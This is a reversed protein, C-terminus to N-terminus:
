LEAEFDFRELDKSPRFKSSSLLRLSKVIPAIFFMGGSWIQFGTFNLISSSNESTQSGKGKSVIRWLTSLQSLFFDKLAM